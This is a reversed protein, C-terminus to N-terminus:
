SCEVQEVGGAEAADAGARRGDVAAAHVFVLLLLSALIVLVVLQIPLIPIAHIHVVIVICCWHRWRCWRTASRRL